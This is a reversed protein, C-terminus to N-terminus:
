GNEEANILNDRGAAVTQAVGAQHQIAEPTATAATAAVAQSKTTDGNDSLSTQTRTATPRVM